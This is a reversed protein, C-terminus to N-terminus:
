TRLTIDDQKFKIGATQLEQVNRFSQKKSWKEPDERRVKSCVCKCIMLPIVLGCSCFIALLLKIFSLCNFTSVGAATIVDWLLDLVHVPNRHCDIKKFQRKLDKLNRPFNIMNSAVIFKVFYKQSKDIPRCYIPQSGGIVMLLALVKFPIQNEPLLLDQPILTAQGNSISLENLETVYKPDATQDQSTSAERFPPDGRYDSSM